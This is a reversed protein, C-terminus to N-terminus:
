DFITETNNKKLKTKIYNVRNSITSSTVNFESGIENYDYGQLYKMDLLTYDQPTLQTSIYSISNNNEFDIENFSNSYSGYNYIESNFDITNDYSANINSFSVTHNSNYRWKDILYNKTITTVWSKFKSKNTDFTALRIFVKIMIESIDDEIGYYESHNKIIYARVYDSYKEYLKDEACKDGDITKQILEIDEM